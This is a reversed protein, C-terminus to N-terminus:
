QEHQYRVNRRPLTFTETSEHTMRPPVLSLFNDWKLKELFFPIKAVM